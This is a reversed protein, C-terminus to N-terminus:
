GPQSKAKSFIGEGHLPRVFGGPVEHGPHMTSIAAFNEINILPRGHDMIVLRTQEGTAQFILLPLQLPKAGKLSLTGSIMRIALVEPDLKGQM